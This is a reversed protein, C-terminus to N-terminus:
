DNANVSTAVLLSIGGGKFCLHRVSWHSSKLRIGLKYHANESFVVLVVEKNRDRAILTGITLPRKIYLSLQLSAVLVCKFIFATPSAKQYRGRLAETITIIQNFVVEKLHVHKIQFRLHLIYRHQIHQRSLDTELNGIQM